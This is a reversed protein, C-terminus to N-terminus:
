RRSTDETNANQCKVAREQSLHIYTNTHIYISEEYISQMGNEKMQPKNKWSM